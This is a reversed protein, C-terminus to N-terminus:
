KLVLTEKLFIKDSSSGVQITFKGPEAVWKKLDPSWFSFDRDSLVITVTGSEGPKLNIKKFGKLEKVPRSISSKMDQIYLQATESGEIKGTNRVTFSVEAKDQMSLKNTSVHMNGYEFTTYSLGYGFPFLPKINQHEYWRYGVFIGEKYNIDFEDHTFQDDTKGTYLQWGAPIYGYGPSDEFKREISIPLKGSPDVKGSLIEAVAINGIQGGYWAYLVAPTKEIWQSMNIGGGANVIVITKENLDMV